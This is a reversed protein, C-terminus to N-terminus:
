EAVIKVVKKLYNPSQKSPVKAWTVFNKGILFDSYGMKTLASTYVKAEEFSSFIKLYYTGDDPGIWFYGPGTELDYDMHEPHYGVECPERAITRLSDVVNPLPDSKPLVEYLVQVIEDILSRKKRQEGDTDVDLRIFHKGLIAYSTFDGFLVTAVSSYTEDGECGAYLRYFGFANVAAGMDLIEVSLYSGGENEYAVYKLSVAGFRKLLEAEGNVHEYMNDPTWTKLKGVKILAPNLGISEPMLIIEEAVVSQPLLFATFLLYAYLFLM